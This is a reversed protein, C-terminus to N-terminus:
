GGCVALARAAESSELPILPSRSNAQFLPEKQLKTLLQILLKHLQDDDLEQKIILSGGYQGYIIDTGSKVDIKKGILSPYLKFLFNYLAPDFSGKLEDLLPTPGSSSV